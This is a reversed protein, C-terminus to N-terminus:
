AGFAAQTTEVTEFEVATVRLRLGERDAPRRRKLVNKRAPRLDAVRM